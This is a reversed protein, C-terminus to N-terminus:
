AKEKIMKPEHQLYHILADLSAGRKVFFARGGIPSGHAKMQHIRGYGKEKTAIYGTTYNPDDSICLEAVISPHHAVASALLLAEHIRPTNWQPYKKAIAARSTETYGIKTVRVGRDELSDLREGTVADILVAGRLPTTTIIDYGREWAKQSVDTIFHPRRQDIKEYLWKEHIPLPRVSVIPEDIAEITLQCFDPTGREHTFAKQQLKYVTDGLERETVITEGGSIHIDKESARMRVSYLKM